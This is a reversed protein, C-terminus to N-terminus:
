KKLTEFKHTKKKALALEILRLMKDLRLISTHAFGALAYLGLLVYTAGVYWDTWESTNGSESLKMLAVLATIASPILGVKEIAGVVLGVRKELADRELKLSAITLDLETKSYSKLIPIFHEFASFTAAANEQMPLLPNRFLGKISDRYHWAGVFPAGLIGLHAALLAILASIKFNNLESFYGILALFISLVCPLVIFVIFYWDLKKQKEINEPKRLRLKDFDRILGVHDIASPKVLTGDSHSDAM